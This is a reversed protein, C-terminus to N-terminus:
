FDFHRFLRGFRKLKLGINIFINTCYDEINNISLKKDNIAKDVIEKIHNANPFERIKMLETMKSEIKERLDIDDIFDFSLSEDIERGVNTSIQRLQCIEKYVDVL